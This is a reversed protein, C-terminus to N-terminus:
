TTNERAIEKKGPYSSSFSTHHLMLFWNIVDAPQFSQLAIWVCYRPASEITQSAMVNAGTCPGDFGLM